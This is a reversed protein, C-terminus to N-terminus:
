KFSDSVVNNESREVISSGKILVKPSDLLTLKDDVMDGLHVLELDDKSYLHRVAESFNRIAVDDNVDSFPLGYGALRDNIVYLKCDM